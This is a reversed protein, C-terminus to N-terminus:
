ARLLPRWRLGSLALLGLGLLALTGPEPVALFSIVGRETANATVAGTPDSPNFRLDIREITWQGSEWEERTPLDTGSVPNPAATNELLTLLFQDLAWTIGAADTFSYSFNHSASTCTSGAGIPPSCAVTVQIRDQDLDATGNDQVTINGSAGGAGINSLSQSFWNAVSFNLSTVAGDYTETPSGANGPTASEYYLNGSIGGPTLGLGALANVWATNDTSQNTVANTAFKIEIPVGHAFQTTGLLAVALALNRCGPKNTLKM